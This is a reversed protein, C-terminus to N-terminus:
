RPRRTRAQEARIDDPTVLVSGAKEEKEREAERAFFAGFSGRVLTECFPIGRGSKKEALAEAVAAAQGAAAARGSAAFVLAAEAMRRRWSTARDASFVEEIAGEVIEEIRGLQASRDLVIPSDRIERYRALSGALVDEGLAWHRLEEQELLAASEALRADGGTTRPLPPDTPTAPTTLLQLRLQPYQAASPPAEGKARAREYGESAIWDCYRWDAEVMRLHHRRALEDRLGRISKRTVEALVAERLGLPENVVTSLHWIGGGARPKLLWFLRDGRPDSISLFGEPEAGGLRPRAPEPAAPKAPEAIAVGKQRLRYLARRAERHLLKDGGTTELDALVRASEASPISGLRDAVALATSPDDALARELAEVSVSAPDIGLRRLAELGAKLRADRPDAAM